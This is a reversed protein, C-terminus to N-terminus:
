LNSGRALSKDPLWKDRCRLLAIALLLAVIGIVVDLLFHNATTIVAWAMLVPHLVGLVIAWRARRFARILLAGAVISWAVHMSPMAAYANVLSPIRGYANFLSSGATDGYYRPGYTTLTDVMYPLMRPPALPYTAFGVLAIILTLAFRERWRLFGPYDRVAALCSVIIVVPLFGVVYYWNAALVLWRHPLQVTQIWSEWDIRLFQEIRLVESANAMGHTPGRDRVAFRVATYLAYLSIVPLMGRFVHGVYSPQSKAAPTQESPLADSPSFHTAEPSWQQYLSGPM